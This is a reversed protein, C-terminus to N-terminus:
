IEEGVLCFLLKKWFNYCLNAGFAEKQLGKLLLHHEFATGAKLLRGLSNYTPALLLTACM